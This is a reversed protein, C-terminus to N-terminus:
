TAMRFRPQLSLHSGAFALRSVVNWEAVRHEFFPEAFGYAEAYVDSSTLYGSDLQGWRHADQLRAVRLSGGAVFPVFYQFTGSFGTLVVAVALQSSTAAALYAGYSHRVLAM